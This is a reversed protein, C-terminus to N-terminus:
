EKIEYVREPINSYNTHFYKKKVTPLKHEINLMCGIADLDSHTFVILEEEYYM